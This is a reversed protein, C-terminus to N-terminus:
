DKLCKKITELVKKGHVPKQLWAAAGMIDAARKIQARDRASIIVVPINEAFRMRAFADMIEEGRLEPLMLDLIILDPVNDAIKGIIEKGTPSNYVNYGAHLLTTMLVETYLPDDEIIAITRKAKDM